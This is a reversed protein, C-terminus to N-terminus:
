QFVSFIDIEALLLALSTINPDPIEPNDLNRKSKVFDLADSYAPFQERHKYFIYLSVTTVSRSQGSHCHVLVNSVSSPDFADADKKLLVRATRFQALVFVASALTSLRNGTGDVLGVKSYQIRLHGNNDYVDGRYDKDTYLIDLDWAVNLVATINNTVLSPIDSASDHDGVFIGDMIFDMRNQANINKETINISTSLSAACSSMRLSMAVLVVSITFISVILSTASFM